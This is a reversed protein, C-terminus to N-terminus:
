DLYDFEDEKLHAVFKVPQDRGEVKALFEVKFPLNASIRHGKWLGVYQKITGEMPFLDIEPVKPVHYVKLPVKVKVKAGIRALSAESEQSSSTSPTATASDQKLAVNCSFAITRSRQSNLTARFPSIASISSSTNRTKSPTSLTPPNLFSSTSTLTPMRDERRRDSARESAKRRSGDTIRTLLTPSKYFGFIGDDDVVGAILFPSLRIPNKKRRRQPLPTTRRQPQVVLDQHDGVVFRTPHDVVAMASADSPSPNGAHLQPLCCITKGWPRVIRSATRFWAMGAKSVISVGTRLTKKEVVPPFVWEKEAALLGGMKEPMSSSAEEGASFILRELGDDGDLFVCCGTTGAFGARCFVWGGKSGGGRAPSLRRRNFGMGPEADDRRGVHEMLSRLEATWVAAWIQGGNNIKKLTVAM